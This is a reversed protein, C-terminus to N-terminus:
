AATKAQGLFDIVAAVDDGVEAETKPNRTMRRRFLVRNERGALRFSITPLYAFFIFMGGKAIQATVVDALPIRRRALPWLNPTRHITVVGTRRDVVLRARWGHILRFLLFGFLLAMLIWVVGAPGGLSDYHAEFTAQDPNDIFAQLAASHRNYQEQQAKRGTPLGLELPNRTTSTTDVIWRVEGHYKTGEVQSRKMEHAPFTYRWSSGLIDTGSHTCGDRARDCVLGSQQPFVFIRAAIYSMQLAVLAAIVTVVKEARTRRFAITLQGDTKEIM